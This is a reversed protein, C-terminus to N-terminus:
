QLPMHVLFFTFFQVKYEEEIVCVFRKKKMEKNKLQKFLPVAAVLCLPIFCKKKENDGEPLSIIYLNGSDKGM